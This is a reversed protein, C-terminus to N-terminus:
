GRPRWAFGRLRGWDHSSTMLDEVWVEPQSWLRRLRYKVEAEVAHRWLWRPKSFLLREGDPSMMRGQYEGVGFYYSRLYRITQREEPIGHLVRAAPVWWGQFGDALIAELAASEEGRITGGPRLGLEPDYLRQRQEKMRVAYNAGVPLVRPALPIPEQGHDQAAYAYRVRPLIRRLWAPPSGDLRVDVPGGFVAAEPWRQFARCYERAWAQDVLTDDDTWLIYDGGAESVALNRAHSLGQQPEFLRRLPLRGDFRAIVEDTADASNNNVVLLEWEVGPPIDMRTMQELARNLLECRNWTCIATTIRM